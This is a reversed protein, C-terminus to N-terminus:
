LLGSSAAVSEFISTESRPVREVSIMMDSRSNPPSRQHMIVAESALMRCSIFVQCKRFTVSEM